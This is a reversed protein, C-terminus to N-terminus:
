DKVYIRDWGACPSKHPIEQDRAIEHFACHFSTQFNQSKHSLQTLKRIVLASTNRARHLSGPESNAPLHERHERHKKEPDVFSFYM